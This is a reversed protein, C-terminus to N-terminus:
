AFGQVGCDNLQGRLLMRSLSKTLVRSFTARSFNEMRTNPDTDTKPLWFKRKLHRQGNTSEQTVLFRRFCRTYASYSLDELEGSGSSMPSARAVPRAKSADTRQPERIGEGNTLLLRDVRGLANRAQSRPPYPLHSGPEPEPPTGNISHNAGSVERRWESAWTEMHNARIAKRVLAAGTRNAPL